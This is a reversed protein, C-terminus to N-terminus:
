MGSGGWPRGKKGAGTPAKTLNLRKFSCQLGPFTQGYGNGCGEAAPCWMWVTCNPTAACADCCAATDNTLFSAGVPDGKPNSDAHPVAPPRTSTM